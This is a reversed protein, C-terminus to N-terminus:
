QLTEKFVRPSLGTQRKFFTGFHSQNRFGLRYAIQQVTLSTSTLLSKAQRTLAEDIYKNPSAGLTQKVVNSLYKPAINMQSAYWEVTHQERCHLEVLSFYQGCIQEARSLSHTQRPQVAYDEALFYILSRVLNLVATTKQQEVLARLLNVYHLVVTMQQESIRWVPSIFLQSLAEQPLKLNLAEAFQTTFGMIYIECDDSIEAKGLVSDALYFACSNSQIEVPKHNIAGRITGKVLFELAYTPPLFHEPFSPVHGEIKVLTLLEHEDKQLACHWAFYNFNQLKEIEPIQTSHQMFGNVIQDNVIYPKAIKTCLYYYNKVFVLLIHFLSCKKHNKLSASTM